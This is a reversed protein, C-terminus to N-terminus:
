KQLVKGKIHSLKQRINKYCVICSWSTVSIVTSADPGYGPSIKPAPLIIAPQSKKNQRIVLCSKSFQRSHLQGTAVWQTVPRDRIQLSRFKRTQPM